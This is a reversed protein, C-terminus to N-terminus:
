EIISMISVLTIALISSSLLLGIISSASDPADDILMTNISLSAALLPDFNEDLRSDALVTGWASTYLMSSTTHGLWTSNNNDTSNNLLIEEDCGFSEVDQLYNDFYSALDTDPAIDYCIFRQDANPKATCVRNSRVFGPQSSSRHVEYYWDQCRIPSESVSSYISDLCSYYVAIPFLGGGGDDQPCPPEVLGNPPFENVYCELEEAQETSSSTNLRKGRFTETAYRYINECTRPYCVGDEACFNPDLCTTGEKCDYGPALSGVNEDSMTRWPSSVLLLLLNQALIVKM